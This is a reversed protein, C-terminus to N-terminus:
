RSKSAPQSTEDLENKEHVRVERTDERFRPPHTIMVSNEAWEKHYKERFSTGAM